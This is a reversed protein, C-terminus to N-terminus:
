RRKNAPKSGLVIKQKGTTTKGADSFAVAMGGFNYAFTAKQGPEMVGDSMLQATVAQEVATRTPLLKANLAKIQEVIPTRAKVYADWAKKHEGTFAAVDLPQFNLKERAM